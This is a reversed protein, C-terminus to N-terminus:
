ATPTVRQMAIVFHTEFRGEGQDVELREEFGYATPRLIKRARRAAHHADPREDFMVADGDLQLHFDHIGGGDTYARAEIAETQPNV